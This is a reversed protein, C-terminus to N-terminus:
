VVKAHAVPFWLLRDAHGPPFEISSDVEPSHWGSGPRLAAGNSGEAQFERTTRRTNIHVVNGKEDRVFTFQADAAKVFFSSDFEPLM